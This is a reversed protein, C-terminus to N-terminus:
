EAHDDEEFHERIEHPDAWILCEYENGDVIARQLETARIAEDNFLHVVEVDPAQGALHLALMHRHCGGPERCQCMMMPRRVAALMHSLGSPWLARADHLHHLGGLRDGQWTYRSQLLQELQRRGFGPRRSVPRGRVDVVVVDLAKALDRLREPQLNGYGVTYIVRSM